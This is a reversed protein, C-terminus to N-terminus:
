DGYFIELEYTFNNTLMWQSFFLETSFDKDFEEAIHSRFSNTDEALYVKTKGKSDKYTYKYVKSSPLTDDKGANALVKSFKEMASNQLLVINQVSTNLERLEAVLQPFDKSYFQQGLRTEHFRVM